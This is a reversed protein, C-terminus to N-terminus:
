SIWSVLNSSEFLRLLFCVEVWHELVVIQEAITGASGLSDSFRLEVRALFPEHATGVVIFPPKTTRLVPFAGVSNLFPTVAISQLVTTIHHSQSGSIFLIGCRSNSLYRVYSPSDLSIM